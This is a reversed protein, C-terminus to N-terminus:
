RGAMSESPRKAPKALVRGYLMPGRDLGALEISALDARRVLNANANGRIRDLGAAM